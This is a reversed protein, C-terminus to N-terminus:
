DKQEPGDWVRWGQGDEFFLYFALMAAFPLKM